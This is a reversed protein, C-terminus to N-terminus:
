NPPILGDPIKKTITIVYTGKGEEGCEYFASPSIWQVPYYHQDINSTKGWCPNNPLLALQGNKYDWEGTSQHYQDNCFSFGNGIFTGNAKFEYEWITSDGVDKIIEILLSDSLFEDLTLNLMELEPISDLNCSDSVIFSDETWYGVFHTSDFEQAFVASLKFFCLLLLYRKMLDKNSNYLSYIKPYM